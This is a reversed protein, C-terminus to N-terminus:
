LKNIFTALPLLQSQNVVWYPTHSGNTEERRTAPEITNMNQAWNGIFAGDGIMWVILVPVGLKYFYESVSYSSQQITVTPYQSAKPAHKVQVMARTTAFDPVHRMLTVEFGGNSKCLIHHIWKPLWNEQGLRMYWINRDKLINEFAIEAEDGQSKLENWKPQM